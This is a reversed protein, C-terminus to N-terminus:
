HQVQRDLQRLMQKVANRAAGDYGIQKRDVLVNDITFDRHILTQKGHSPQSAQIKQLLAQTGDVRYNEFNHQEQKLMLDLWPM